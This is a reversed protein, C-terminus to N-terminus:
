KVETSTVKYDGAKDVASKIAETSITAGAKSTLVVKGIEVQCSDVGEIACVQKRVAKACSSCTMGEVAITYTEAFSFFPLSLALALIYKM